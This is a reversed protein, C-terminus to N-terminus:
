EKLQDELDHLTLVDLLLFLAYPFLKSGAHISGFLVLIFDWFFFILLFHLLGYINIIDSMGHIFFWQREIFCHCGNRNWYMHLCSWIKRQNSATRTHSHRNTNVRQMRSSTGVCDGRRKPKTKASRNGTKWCLLHGPECFGWQNILYRCWVTLGKYIDVKSTKQLLEPIAVAPGIGM